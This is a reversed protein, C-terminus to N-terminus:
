VYNHEKLKNKYFKNTLKEVIILFTLTTLIFVVSYVSGMMRDGSQIYPFMLMSFTVIKGGGILFTLFYQSFSVIFAMSGASIVGPLLIPFTIYIFTQLSNAGLVKAQLEMDEGILEFVSKLIRISYPICPILQVLVVGLFTNALGIKIFQLHIGMAVTVTPVIIPAFILLEILKKGKFRYLALAKAAPITIGLTIVTVTFSLFISFILTSISKSSPNIFYLWGRLGFNEPLIKPWPWNKTFSWIFIVALPLLLFCLFIGVIVKYVLKTKEKM